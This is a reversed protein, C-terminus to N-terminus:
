MGLREQIKPLHKLKTELYDSLDSSSILGQEYANIVNSIYPKGKEFLIKISQSIGGDNDQLAENQREKAAKAAADWLAKQQWFFQESIYTLGLLKRAVVEMSVNYRRAMLQIDRDNVKHKVLKLKRLHDAFDEDPVLFAAAFRNCFNEIKAYQSHRDGPEDRFVDSENLVLHAMEHFLSFIMGNRSDQKNLVIIPYKGTLCFARVQPMPLDMKFVFIGLKEIIAQYKRYAEDPKWSMQDKLTFGIMLRFNNALMAPDKDVAIGFQDSAADRAAPSVEALISQYRVAKRLGLRLESPLNRIESNSLSRFQQEIPEEIPPKPLLLIAVPRKYVKDALIELQRYTPSQSGTEWSKYRDAPVGAKGAAEEVTYGMSMRAWRLVEPALPFTIQGAM